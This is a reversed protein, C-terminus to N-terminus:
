SNIAKKYVEIIKSAISEADLGLELIRQRGNTRGKTKSFELALKIKEAVDAPDFSTIYCGETNGIVERVDGVDTSVIPCNCAMAEKIINPSGENYSCLVLVSCITIYWVVEEAKVPYPAILEVEPQFKGQRFAEQLLKFNKNSDNQHGLFLIYDKFDTLKIQQSAVKKGLPTFLEINVGNPIVCTKELYKIFPRLSGAKVIIAKSFIQVILSVIKTLLFLFANVLSSKKGGHLDSGMFSIVVPLSQRSLIAILGCLGYHAHLIDYNNNQLNKKLQRTASFYGKIGPRTILFHDIILGKQKLSEAQNKIVSDIKGLRIGNSVFLVKM